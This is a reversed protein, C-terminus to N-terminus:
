ASSLPMTPEQLAGHGLPSVIAAAEGPAAVKAAAAAAPRHIYYWRLVSAVAISLLVALVPLLIIYYMRHLGLYWCAFANSDCAGRGRQAAMYSGSYIHQRYIIFNTDGNSFNMRNNFFAALNNGTWLLNKNDDFAFTDAWLTKAIHVNNRINNNSKNEPNWAWVANEPDSNGGSYLIGNEAFAMGDANSRKSGVFIVEKRVAKVTM